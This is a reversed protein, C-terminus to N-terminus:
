FPKKIKKHIFRSAIQVLVIQVVIVIKATVIKTVANQKKFM